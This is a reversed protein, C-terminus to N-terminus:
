VKISDNLVNHMKDMKTRFGRVGYTLSTNYMIIYLPPPVDTKKLIGRLFPWIRM